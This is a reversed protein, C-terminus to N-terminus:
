YHEAYVFAAGGPLGQLSAARKKDPAIFLLAAGSVLAAAGVSWAVTNVVLWRQGSEVARFGAEDCRNAPCHADATSKRQAVIAGSTLGLGVGLSGLAVFSLGLDRGVSRSPERAEPVGPKTLEEGAQLRVDLQEAEHLEILSRRPKRGPSLVLLEVVGPDVPLPVGLSASGLETGGRLVRAGVPVGEALRLTLRPL